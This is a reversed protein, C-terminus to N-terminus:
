SGDLLVDCRGLWTTSQGDCDNDVDDWVEDAGPYVSDDSDDCDGDDTAATVM